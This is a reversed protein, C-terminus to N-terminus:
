SSVLGPIIRWTVTKKSPSPIDYVGGFKSSYIGLIICFIFPSTVNELSVDNKTIWEDFKSPTVHNKSRVVTPAVDSNILTRYKSCSSTM